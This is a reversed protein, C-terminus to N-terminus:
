ELGLVLVSSGVVVVVEADGVGFAETGGSRNGVEVKLM